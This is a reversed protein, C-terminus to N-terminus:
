FRFGITAAINHTNTRIKQAIWDIESSYFDANNSRLLYAMDFFFSGTRYGFGLSAYQTGKDVFYEPATSVDIVYGNKDQVLMQVAKKDTNRSVNALGCRLSVNNTLRYEAGFKVTHTAKFNRSMNNNSSVFWGESGERESLRMSNYDELEYDLSVIGKQAIIYSAGALIKYPSRYTYRKVHPELPRVTAFDTIDDNNFYAEGQVDYQSTMAYWTPTHFALAVRLNDMVRAIGGVKLNFGAGSTLQWNDLYFYGFPQAADRNFYNETYWSDREYEMNKAGFTAGLYFKNDFNHSYSFAWENIFGRESYSMESHATDTDSFGLSYESNDPDDTLPYILGTQFGLVSLWAIDGNNWPNLPRGNFLMEGRFADIPIGQSIDNIFTAVTQNIPLQKGTTFQRNFNALRNFSIGFTGSSHKQTGTYYPIVTVYSFNNVNFRTRRDLESSNGYDAKAANVALNATFTLESSRYLGLGAPNTTMVTPDGGL